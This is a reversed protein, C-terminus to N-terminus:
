KWLWRSPSSADLWARAPAIVAGRTGPHARSATGYPSMSAGPAKWRNLTPGMTSPRGCGMPAGQTWGSQGVIETVISKLNGTSFPEHENVSAAPSWHVRAHTVARTSIDFDTSSFPASRVSLEGRVLVAVPQDSKGAHVEDTDFLITASSVTAAPPIDVSPFRIGVIQDAGDTCFELDSSTLYMGGTAADEEADDDPSGVAAIGDTAVTCVALSGLLVLLFLPIRASATMTCSTPRYAGDTDCSPRIHM